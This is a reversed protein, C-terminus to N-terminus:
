LNVRDDGVDPQSIVLFETTANSENKIHHAQGAEIYIGQKENLVHRKDMIEMVATGKLVFFFQRTNKHIHRREATGAPMKEQKVSLEKDEHLIWTKCNDGWEYPQSNEKDRVENM